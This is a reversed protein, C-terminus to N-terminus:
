GRLTAIMMKEDLLFNIANLPDSFILDSNLLCKTTTGEKGIIALGLLAKKLMMADNNGNGVAITVKEGLKMLASCKAEEHSINDSKLMIYKVELKKAIDVLNGRTDSSILYIDYFKKLIEFKEYLKKSIEGEFQITGNMDFLVNKITIEGYNPINIMRMIIDVQGINNIKMVM